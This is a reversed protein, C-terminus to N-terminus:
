NLESLARELSAADSVSLCGVDRSVRRMLGCLVRGPGVEVVTDIGDRVMGRMIDEWLVSSTIQRILRDRIEEAGTIKAADVNAYLPFSIPSISVRELHPRLRERAPGMLSCHFPASVELPVVRKAGKEGALRCAEEVSRSDGSIVIQEPSNINAPELVRGDGSLLRCIEEVLERDLGLIAAMAGDGEPVAEQMFEGRMRVLTLADALKLAGGAVLASYEGLSHGAAAEPIVGERELLRQAATSVALIAPQANATRRLVEEPGNFCIGSLDMGLVEDAERFVERAAPFKDFLERGMGVYQSGQGPFLFAIRKTM